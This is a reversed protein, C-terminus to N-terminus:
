HSLAFTNYGYEETTELKHFVNTTIRAAIAITTDVTQRDTQRDQAQTDPKFTNQHV